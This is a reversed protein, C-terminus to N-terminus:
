ISVPVTVQIIEATDLAVHKQYPGALRKSKVVERRSSLAQADASAKDDSRLDMELWSEIDQDAIKLELGATVVVTVEDPLEGWLKLPLNALELHSGAPLQLAFFGRNGSFSVIKICGQGSLEYVYAVDVDFDGVASVDDAVLYWRADAAPNWLHADFFLLLKPPRQPRIEVFTLEVAKQGSMPGM